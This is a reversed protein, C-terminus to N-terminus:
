VSEIIGQVIKASGRAYRNNGIVSMPAKVLETFRTKGQKAVELAKQTGAKFRAMTLLQHKAEEGRVVLRARVTAKEPIFVSLSHQRM